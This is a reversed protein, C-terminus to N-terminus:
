FWHDFDPSGALSPESISIKFNSPQLVQVRIVSCMFRSSAVVRTAVHSLSNLLSFILHLLFPPPSLFVIQEPQFALVDHGFIPSTTPFSAPCCLGPKLKEKEALQFDASFGM